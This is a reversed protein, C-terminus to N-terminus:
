VGTRMVEQYAQIVRTRIAGVLKFAVLAREATLITEHINNTKGAAFDQSAKEAAHMEKNVGELMELFQDTFGPAAPKNLEAPAINKLENNLIIDTVPM